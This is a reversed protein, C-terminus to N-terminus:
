GGSDDAVTLTAFSNADYSFKAQTSTSLVELQSDPDTVGIGLKGDSTLTMKETAVESAGTRFAM